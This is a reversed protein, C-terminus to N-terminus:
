YWHLLLSHSCCYTLMPCQFSNFVEMPHKKIFEQCALRILNCRIIGPLKAKKNTELLGSPDKVVLFGVRSVKLGLFSIDMKFYGTIPIEGGNVGKFDFLNHSTAEPERVPELKPKISRDCYSQQVLSVMSGSGLLSAMKRGICALNVKPGSAVAWKMISFKVQLVEAEVNKGKYWIM